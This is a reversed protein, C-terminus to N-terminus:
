LIANYITFLLISLHSYIDDKYYIGFLELVTSAVYLRLNLARLVVSFSALSRSEMMVLAVLTARELVCIAVAPDAVTAVGLGNADCFLTAGVGKIQGGMMFIPVDVPVM